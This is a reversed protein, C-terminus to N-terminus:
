ALALIAILTFGPSNVLMRLAYRLHTMLTEMSAAGETQLRVASRNAAREIPIVFKVRLINRALGDYGPILRLCWGRPAEDDAAKSSKATQSTCYRLPSEKCTM